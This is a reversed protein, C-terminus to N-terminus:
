RMWKNEWERINKEDVFVGKATSPTKKQIFLRFFLGIGLGAGLGALHAINGIGSPNFVGIIDGAVWLIGAIFIPMPLGFAWVILMPMVMILTGIVGFIAGSAGLSSSYFNVAIINALIGIGFFVILFRKGGILKELISGFLALAFINYLLHLIDGHLFISTVFRWLQLYEEQSLLFLNTFRPILIQLLFFVIAIGCLKLAYFKFKM